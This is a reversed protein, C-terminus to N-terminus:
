PTGRFYFALSCLERLKSCMVELRGERYPSLSTGLYSTLQRLFIM